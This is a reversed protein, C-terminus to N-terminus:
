IPTFKQFCFEHVSDHGTTECTPMKKFTVILSDLPINAEPGEEIEGFEKKM